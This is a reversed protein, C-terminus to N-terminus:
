QLNYGDGLDGEVFTVGKDLSYKGFWWLFTM